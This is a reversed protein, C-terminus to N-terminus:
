SCSKKREERGCIELKAQWLLSFFSCKNPFPLNTPSPCFHLLSLPPLKTFSQHLAQILLIYIYYIFIPPQFHLQPATHPNLHSHQIPFLYLFIISKWSLRLSIVFFFLLISSLVVLIFVIRPLEILNKGHIQCIIM